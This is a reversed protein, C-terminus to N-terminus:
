ITFLNNYATLYQIKKKKFNLKLYSGLSCRNLQFCWQHSLFGKLCSWSLLRVTQKHRHLLSM